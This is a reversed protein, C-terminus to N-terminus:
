PQYALSALSFGSNLSRRVIAATGCLLRRFSGPVIYHRRYFRSDPVLGPWGLRGASFSKAQRYRQLFTAERTPRPGRVLPPVFAADGVQATIDVGKNKWRAFFCEKFTAQKLDLERSFLSRLMKCAGRAALSITRCACFSAVDGARKM